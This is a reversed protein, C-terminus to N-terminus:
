LRRCKVSDRTALSLAYSSYLWRREPHLIWEWVPWFVSVALSKMHRPPINILLAQIQGNTVAELHECIATLHNGPVFPTTPELIPWAQSVFTHLITEEELPKSEDLLPQRQNTPHM